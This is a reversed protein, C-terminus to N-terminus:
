QIHHQLRQKFLQIVELVAEVAGVAVLNHVAGVAVLEIGRERFLASCLSALKAAKRTPDTDAAIDAVAARIKGPNM